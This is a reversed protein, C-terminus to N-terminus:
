ERHSAEAIQEGEIRLEYVAAREDDQWTVRVDDGDAVGLEDALRVFRRLEAWTTDTIDITINMSNGVM